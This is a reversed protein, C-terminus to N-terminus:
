EVVYVPNEELANVVEDHVELDEILNTEENELGFHDIGNGEKPVENALGPDEDDDLVNEYSDNTLM